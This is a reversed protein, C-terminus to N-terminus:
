AHPPRQLAGSVRRDLSEIVHLVEAAFASSYDADEGAYRRRAEPSTVVGSPGAVRTAAAGGPWARSHDRHLSALLTREVDDAGGGPRAWSASSSLSRQPAPYTASVPTTLRPAAAYVRSHTQPSGVAVASSTTTTTTTSSSASSRTPSTPPRHHLPPPPPTHVTASERVEAVTTVHTPATQRAAVGNRGRRQTPAPVSPPQELPESPPPPPPAPPAPPTAEAGLKHTSVGHGGRPPPEHSGVHAPGVGPRWQALSDRVTEAPVAGAADTATAAHRSDHRRAHQLHEVDKSLESGRVQLVEVTHLILSWDEACKLAQALSGRRRADAISLELATAEAVETRRELAAARGRLSEATSEQALLAAQAAELRQQAEACHQKWHAVEVARRHREHRVCSLMAAVHKLALLLPALATRLHAEEAAGPSGSPSQPTGGSGGWLNVLVAAEAGFLAEEAAAAAASSGRQQRAETLAHEVPTSAPPAAAPSLVVHPAGRDRAASVTIRATTSTALADNVGDGDDYALSRQYDVAVESLLGAVRELARQLAVSRRQRAAGSTREAAEQVHLREDALHLQRELQSHQQAALDTGHQATTLAVQLRQTEGEQQRLAASLEAVRDWVEQVKTTLEDREATVSLLALKAEAADRRQEELRTQRAALREQAEQLELRLALTEGELGHCRRRLEACMEDSALAQQRTQTLSLSSHYLNGQLGTARSADEEVAASVIVSSTAAAPPAPSAHPAAPVEASSTCPEASGGGRLLPPPPAHIFVTTGADDASSHSAAGSGDSM